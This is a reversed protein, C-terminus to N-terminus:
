GVVVGQITGLYVSIILCCAVLLISLVTSSISYTNLLCCCHPVPHHRYYQCPSLLNHILRFLSSKGLLKGGLPLALGLPFVDMIAKPGQFVLSRMGLSIPQGLYRSLEVVVTESLQDLLPKWSLM